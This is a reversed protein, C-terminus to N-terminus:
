SHCSSNKHLALVVFAALFGFPGASAIMVAGVGILFLYMCLQCFTKM